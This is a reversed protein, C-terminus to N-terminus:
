RGTARYMGDIAHEYPLAGSGIRGADETWAWQDSVTEHWFIRRDVGGRGPSGGCGWSSDVVITTWRGSTAAETSIHATGTLRDLEGGTTPYSDRVIATHGVPRPDNTSPAPPKLIFLDGARAEQLSVRVYGREALGSLNEMLPPRLGLNARTVGRAALLAQQVYGACDLGVGHDFMMTRVRLDLGPAGQAAAPLRGEGILGQTLRTVQLPTARGAKALAVVDDTLGVRRAASALAAANGSVVAAHGYYESNMRFPIRVAVDGETTHFTPTALARFADLRQAVVADASRTVTRTAGVGVLPTPRATLRGPLAGGADPLESVDRTRPPIPASPPASPGDLTFSHRSTIPQTM